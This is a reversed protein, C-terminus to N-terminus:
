HQNFSATSTTQLALSNLGISGGKLIGPLYPAFLSYLILLVAVTMMPWGMARRSAEFTVLIAALFLVTIQISGLGMVFSEILKEGFLFAYGCAGATLVIPIFDYWPVRSRAATKTAPFVIFVLLLLLGLSGARYSIAAFYLGLYSHIGSIYVLHYLCFIVALVTVLKATMGKLQRQQESSVDEAGIELAAM